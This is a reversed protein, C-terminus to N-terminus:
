TRNQKIAAHLLIPHQRIYIRFTESTWRGLGQIIELSFGNQALFTAGGARISHGGVEPGCHQRLKELFWNRRPPQGNERLWLAPNKPFRSDRSSIYRQMLIVPNTPTPNSLVIIKSGEYFCDAKHYPLQFSVSNSKMELTDRRSQKRPSDLSHDNPFVLEGLRM